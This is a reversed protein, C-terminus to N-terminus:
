LSLRVGVLVRHDDYSSGFRNIGNSFVVNNNGGGSTRGTYDYSASVSVNRNLLYSAGTGVTYLTQSGGGKYKNYFVGANGQLLVNRLLEHDITFTGSTETYGATTEDAADQIRRSVTGTLTTLGTPNWIASLEAIPAQITDYIGASFTRIEYGGLARIRLLGTVDYDVGGLIAFDNYDRKPLGAPRSSFNAIANRVIVIVSRRDAFQYGATVSPTFLVRNRYSQNYITGGITGSSFDYNSFAFAPTVYTRAFNARYAVRVTDVRFSLSRSLQQPTNLDQPTQNLNLHDYGATITDRGIDYSAGIRAAWNTHSVANQDPYRFDDVSLAANVNVRSLTSTVDVGASSQILASGSASSTGLVNSEYGVRETIQPRIVFNGARIGTSEYDPRRRSIVTVGAEDALGSIDPSIFRDLIQARAMDTSLGLVTAVVAAIGGCKGLLEIQRRESRRM